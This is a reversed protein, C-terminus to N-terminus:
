VLPKAGAFVRSPKIPMSFGSWYMADISVREPRSTCTNLKPVAAPWFNMHQNNSGGVEKELHRESLLLQAVLSDTQARGLRPFWLPVETPSSPPPPLPLLAKLRIGLSLLCRLPPLLPPSLLLLPPPQRAPLLLLLEPVGNVDDEEVPSLVPDPPLSVRVLVEDFVSLVEEADYADDPSDSCARSTCM